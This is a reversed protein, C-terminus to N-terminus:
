RDLLVCPDDHYTTRIRERYGAKEAVRLSAVHDVNIICTTTQNPFTVDTWGLVARLAESALGRGQAAPSLVWGTEFASVPPTIDREFNAIGVEGVYQGTVRDVVAFFGYGFLHWHGVYRQLRAWAQERTAVQKGVFKVVEPDGWLAACADLDSAVHVRLILRETTLTIM